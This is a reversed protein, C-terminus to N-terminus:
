KSGALDNCGRCNRVPLSEITQFSILIEQLNRGVPEMCLEVVGAGGWVGVRSFLKRKLLTIPSFFFSLDAVLIPLSLQNIINM